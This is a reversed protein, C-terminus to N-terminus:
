IVRYIDDPYTDLEFPEYSLMRSTRSGSQTQRLEFDPERDAGSIHKTGVIRASNWATEIHGTDPYGLIALGEDLLRIGVEQAEMQTASGPLTFEVSAKFKETYKDRENGGHKGRWILTTEWSKRMPPARTPTPATPKRGFKEECADAFEPLVKETHESVRAGKWKRGWARGEMWAKHTRITTYGIGVWDAMSRLSLDGEVNCLRIAKTLLKGWDHKMNENVM